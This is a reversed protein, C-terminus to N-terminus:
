RSVATEQTKRGSFNWCNKNRWYTATEELGAGTMWAKVDEQPIYFAVPATLQDYIQAFTARFGLRYLLYAFDNYFLRSSLPKLSGIENVPKYILFLGLYAPCTLLFSLAYLVATPLYRTIRLRLPTVYKELWENNEKGYVTNVVWGGPRAHQCVAEFGKRPDPLIMLVGASFVVDFDRVLPIQYIDSQIVHVNPLDRTKRFAVEVSASLDVGIVERAGYEAARRINRGAGCGAELVRANQFIAPPLPHIFEELLDREFGEGLNQFILWENGFRTATHRKVPEIHERLIRPIGGHVPHTQRCSSCILQGAWIEGAERVANELRFPQRCDLCRLYDLLREKM